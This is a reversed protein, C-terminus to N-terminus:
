LLGPATELAHRLLRVFVWGALALTTPLLLLTALAKVQFGLLLVNMQPMTRSMLAISTDLLFLVLLPLGAVGLAILMATSCYAMLVTPDHAAIAHGLPVADVSAAWIALLDAPGGIAFFIAGAVYGLITGALPVQARTTPDILLALGYGAQIDLVRGVTQLAAFAFQLALALSIGMVLETVAVVPIGHSWFASGSTAAPNGVVLWASLSISLAVRVATPVRVLTFPPAFALTPALRLAILLTAVLQNLYDEM